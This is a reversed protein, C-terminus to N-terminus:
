TVEGLANRADASWLDAGIGRWLDDIQNLALGGLMITPRQGKFEGRLHQIARRAIPIQQTLSVSLCLLEPTFLDVQQVLARTPCDAGLFQVNWGRLEFNDSLMRLGLVHHNGEVCAFLVKRGNPEAPEITAYAQALLSQSIATALHEQAISVRSEQWRQGIEYMAPQILGVSVDVLPAGAALDNFLHTRASSRDGALLADTFGLDSASPPNLHKFFAPRYPSTSALAEIGHQLVMQVSSADESALRTAWGTCLLDFSEQLHVASIGKGQLVSSLWRAYEAFPELYLMELCARLYDQHFQLDQRCFDKGRAGFQLEWEPHLAYLQLMAEEIVEGAKSELLIKGSQSIHKLKMAQISGRFRVAPKEVLAVPLM